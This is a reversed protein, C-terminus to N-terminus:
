RKRLKIVLISGGILILLASASIYVVADGGTSPLKKWVKKNTIVASQGGDESEVVEISSEFDEKEVERITYNEKESLDLETFRGTYGNDRNLTVSNVVTGDKLLEVVIEPTADDDIGTWRKIIEIDYTDQYIGINHYPSHDVDVSPNQVLEINKVRVKDNEYVSKNGNDVNEIHTVEWSRDDFEKLRVEYSGIPLEDFLYSGDERTSTSRLLQGNQYLELERNELRKENDDILGNKNKDIWVIGSLDREIIRTEVRNSQVELKYETDSNGTSYYKYRDGGRNDRTQMHLYIEQDTNITMPDRYVVLVYKTNVEGGTYRTFQSMDLDKPNETALDNNTYYVDYSISNDKSTVDKLKLTGHYGEQPIKTLSKVSIEPDELTTYPKVTVRHESGIEDYAKDIDDIISVKRLFQYNLSFRATKGPGLYRDKSYSPNHSKFSSWYVSAFQNQKNFILNKHEILKEDITIDYHLEWNAKTTHTVNPMKFTLERDTTVDNTSSTMELYLKEGTEKNIAYASGTKYNIGRPFMVDVKLQDEVYNPDNPIFGFVKFAVHQEKSENSITVNESPSQDTSLYQIRYEATEIALTTWSNPSRGPVEPTIINVDEDWEAINGDVRPLMSWDDTKNARYYVDFAEINPNGNTWNGKEPGDVIMKPSSVFAHQYLKMNELYQRISSVEGLGSALAEDYTDFWHYDEETANMISDKSYDTNKKIGFDYKFGLDNLNYWSKGPNENEFLDKVLTYEGTTWMRSLNTKASLQNTDTEIDYLRANNEDISVMEPNWKM